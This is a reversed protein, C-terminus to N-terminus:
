LPPPPSEERRPAFTWLSHATFNWLAVPPIAIIKAVAPRLHRPLVASVFPWIFHIILTDLALGVLNVLVFRLYQTPAHGETAKFAWLRNWIFGNTVGISFSICNALIRMGPTEWGLNQVLVHFIGVDIITSSVGVLGFRIFRWLTPHAAIRYIPSGPSGPTSSRTM